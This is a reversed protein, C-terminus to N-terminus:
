SVDGLKTQVFPEEATELPKDSKIAKYWIRMADILVGLILVMFIATLYANLTNNFVLREAAEISPVTSPLKGSAAAEKMVEAQKLFGIKPIDSFIKQWAAYFTVIMLWALPALTVWVYKKKGMKLIVTTAVILAIAALMQNVIGFLPWLTNIGGLPDTVGVVLFYGWGAVVLASTFYVAAMSDTKRLPKFVQGLLDQLMFRGVRTGADITTLIFVAEFLIAFHYWFAMLQPGGIVQSFIQAIGVALSPAGGTRSLISEEDVNKALENIEDASVTFGWSSITEAATAVDPGIAAGPSNIAFYIGPTLLTAAVMAMVAVFSETLMGAYGVMPAHKENAILKPSTGSSILAHFGSVAGCAITIFLFPFLNGAFVPGTGDIFKTLAPMQIEPLVILIGLAMMGIVGVKLFTSLYDRPALLMWVPLVSALFGYIILMWALTEGDFTFLPALTPSDAVWQGSILAFILLVFGIMSAEGVRGPRLYRMYVGMFLAIPITMAITYTGWPSSKLANVVVLALVAILIIMIAFVGVLALIGGVPGIEEKAIQGISKGRRRMSIILIVFDQVAGALVAGVIIWITGPLYGMQAALTPGVLPGAGAIAAFHHGYLVWKNTPVFDKGDNYREAPTANNKNLSFIKTAIFRAYFRYAIAYTCLSAVVFWIANIKEDRQLAIISLAIGGALGIGIWLLAKLFPNKKKAPVNPQLEM